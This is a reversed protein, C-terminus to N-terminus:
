EAATTSRLYAALGSTMRLYWCMCFVVTYPWFSIWSGSGCSRMWCSSYRQLLPLIMRISLLGICGVALVAVELLPGASSCCATVTGSPSRFAESPFPSNINDKLVWSKDKLDHGELLKYFLTKWSGELIQMM